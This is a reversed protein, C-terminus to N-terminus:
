RDAIFATPEGDPLRGCHGLLNICCKGTTFTLSFYWFKTVLSVLLSL